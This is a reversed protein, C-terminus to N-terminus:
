ATSSSRRLTPARRRACWSPGRAHGVSGAPRDRGGPVHGRGGAPREAGRGRPTRGAERHHDDQRRRERGDGPRGVPVCDADAGRGGRPGGGGGGPAGPPDGRREGHARRPDARTGGTRGLDPGRCRGRGAGGGAGRAGALAGHCRTRPCGGARGGASTTDLPSGPPAPRGAAGCAAGRACRTAPAGEPLRGRPRAARAGGRRRRDM